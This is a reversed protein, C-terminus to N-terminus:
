LFLPSAFHCLWSKEMARNTRSSIRGTSPFREAVRNFNLASSMATTRRCLHYRNLDSSILPWRCTPGLVLLAWALGKDAVTVFLPPTLLV